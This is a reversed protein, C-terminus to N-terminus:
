EFSLTMSSRQKPKKILQAQNRRWIRIIAPKLRCPEGDVQMPIIKRTTLVASRCQCLRVGHGGMQLAAQFRKLFDNPELDTRTPCHFTLMHSKSRTPWITYM